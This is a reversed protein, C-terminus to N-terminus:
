EMVFVCSVSLDAADGTGAAVTCPIEIVYNWYVDYYATSIAVLPNDTWATGSPQIGNNSDNTSVKEGAIEINIKPNATADATNLKMSIAVLRAPPLKWRFGVKMVGALLDGSTAGFNDEAIYFDLQVTKEPIGIELSELDGGMSAGAVDVYSDESIDDVVGYYTTGGIVYRLARGEEMMSTDSMTIRSTSAPTATYASTSVLAWGDQTRAPPLAEWQVSLLAAGGGPDAQVKPSGIREIGLIIEGPLYTTGGIGRVMFPKAVYVITDTLATGEGDCPYCELYEDQEADVVFRRVEVGKPVPTQSNEIVFRSGFARVNIGKGGVIQVISM